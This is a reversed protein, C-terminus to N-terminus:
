STKKVLRWCAEKVDTIGAQQFRPGATSPRRELLELEYRSGYLARVTPEDISWPPGDLREADYEFTILLIVGGAPLLATLTDVYRGRTQPDLAVLAARDYVADFGGWATALAKSLAFIDGQAQAVEVGSQRGRWLKFPGFPEHTPDSHAEAYFDVVAREILEVGTVLHGRRALAWLDQAKGSLPVLLRSRPPLQTVHKHLLANEKGEHFGLQANDWREQWFNKDM